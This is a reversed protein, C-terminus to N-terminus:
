ENPERYVNSRHMTRYLYLNTYLSLVGTKYLVCDVYSFAVHKGAKRVWLVLAGSLVGKKEDRCSHATGRNAFPSTDAAPLFDCLGAHISM